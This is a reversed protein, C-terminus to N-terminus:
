LQRRKSVSLLADRSDKVYGDKASESRWQDHRKFLRDTVGANGAASARGAQLSHLGFKAAKFGLEKLKAWFARENWLLKVLRLCSPTRRMEHM